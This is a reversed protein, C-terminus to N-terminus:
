RLPSLPDSSRLEVAGIDCYYGPQGSQYELPRTRGFRDHEIAQGYLDSCHSPPVADVAAYHYPDPVPARDIATGGYTQYLTMYVYSSDGPGYLQCSGTDIELNFGTSGLGQPDCVAYSNGPRMLNGGIWLPNNARNVLAPGWGDIDNDVLTSFLLQSDGSAATLYAVQIAGANPSGNRYFVSSEIRLRDAIVWLAGAEMGRNHIFSSRSLQLQAEDFVAVAGAVGSLAQNAVFNSDTIEVEISGAGDILIAGALIGRNGHFHVNQIDLQGTEGVVAIPSDSGENGTFSSDRISVSEISGSRTGQVQIASARSMQSRISNFRVSRINVARVGNIALGARMELQSLDVRAQGNTKIIVTADSIALRDQGPGEISLDSQIHLSSKLRITGSVSERFRITDSGPTGATCRGVPRDGHASEVAARLSCSRSDTQDELTDVVITAATAYTSALLTAAFVANLISCINFQM